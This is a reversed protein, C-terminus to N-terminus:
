LSCRDTTTNWVGGITICNVCGVYSAGTENAACCPENTCSAASAVNAVSIMGVVLVLGIFMAQLPRM